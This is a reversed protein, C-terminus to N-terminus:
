ALHAAHLYDNSQMEILRSITRQFEFELREGTYLAEVRTAASVILKVKRDYFEDVLAIFRRSLDDLERTLQPIDSIIVTPYWRAIEIYDEQSRPGDCIDMFDFWAIGKACRRTRVDRGLIQLTRNEIIEASAIEAFYHQLKANADDGVPTLYTGAEQLLQLRYDVGSDLEIVDTHQELLAIAPLFRERQLGGSYLEAPRSNSTAVLTVGRRFLGDLLKGLLMADAIDSVYFEDFCLVRISAAIDAAIKDLPDEIDGLARLRAHIDSMMRHFHVRKKQEIALSTFFLDLLLTKGRGVGGWLYIGRVGSYDPAGPLWNRLRQAFSNQRIVQEQLKQLHGVVRDQAADAQLGHASVAAAYANKITM